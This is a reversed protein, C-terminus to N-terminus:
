VRTEEVIKCGDAGLFACFAKLAKERAALLGKTQRVGPEWWWHKICLAGGRFHEPEFRAVFRDGYLVPLVYYGYERKVQPTYVEWRYRFGFLAEILNRDWIMNDLPAIFRMTKDEPADLSAELIPGDEAPLFLPRDIGEVEVRVIEGRVELADFSRNRVATTFGPMAVFADSGRNWMLGVADIRRKLLWQYYAEDSGHPDPASLIDEPLHREILDYYRRVGKKHSLILKGINWYGELAARALKTPGWPWDVKEDLGLEDSCLPGRAEIEVRIHSYVCEVEPSIFHTWQGERMRKFHPFEAVPYICLCKDFGDMLLRDVYLADYLMTPKYKKIRSQLVLDPNRGVVNLPDFQMSRLGRVQDMLRPGRSRFHLYTLYRRAQGNSLQM